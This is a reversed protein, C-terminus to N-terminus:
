ARPAQCLIFSRFRRAECHFVSRCGIGVCRSAMFFPLMAFSQSAGSRKTLQKVDILIRDDDITVQRTRIFKGRSFNEVQQVSKIISEAMVPKWQCVIDLPQRFSGFDVPQAAREVAHRRIRSM